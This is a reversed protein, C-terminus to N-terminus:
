CSYRSFLLYGYYHVTEFVEIRQSDYGLGAILGLALYLISLAALAALLLITDQVLAALPTEVNKWIQAWFSGEPPTQVQRRAAAM